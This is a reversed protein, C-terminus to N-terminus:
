FDEGDDFNKIKMQLGSDKWVTRLEAELDYMLFIFSEPIALVQEQDYQKIIKDLERRALIIQERIKKEKGPPYYGYLSLAISEVVRVLQQMNNSRRAQGCERFSTALDILFLFGAHFEPKANEFDAMGTKNLLVKYLEKTKTGWHEVALAVARM